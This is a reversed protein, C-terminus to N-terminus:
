RFPRQEVLDGPAGIAELREVRGIDLNRFPDDVLVLREFGIEGVRQEDHKPPLTRTRRRSSLIARPRASAPAQSSAAFTRTVGPRIVSWGRGEGGTIDTRRVPHPFTTPSDRGARM